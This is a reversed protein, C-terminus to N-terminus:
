CCCCCKGNVVFLGGNPLINMETDTVCSAMSLSELMYGSKSLMGFRMFFEKVALLKDDDSTVDDKAEDMTGGNFWVVIVDVVNGIVWGLVGDNIAVEVITGMLMSDYAVNGRLLSREEAEEVELEDDADPLKLCGTDM